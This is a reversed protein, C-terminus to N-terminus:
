SLLLLDTKLFFFFLFCGTKLEMNVLQKYLYYIYLQLYKHVHTHCSYNIYWLPMINHLVKKEITNFIM